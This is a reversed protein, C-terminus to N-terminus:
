NLNGLYNSFLLDLKFKFCTKRGREDVLLCSQGSLKFFCIEHIHLFHKLSTILIESTSVIIGMGMTKEENGKEILFIRALHAINEFKHTHFWTGRQQYIVLIQKNSQRMFLALLWFLLDNAQGKYCLNKMIKNRPKKSLKTGNLLCIDVVLSM